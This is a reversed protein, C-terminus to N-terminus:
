SRKCCSPCSSSSASCATRSRHRRPPPVRPPPHHTTTSPPRPRPAARAQTKNEEPVTYATEDEPAWHAKVLNKFFVAAAQRVSLPVTEQTLMQLVTLVCQPNVKAKALEEEAAKRTAKDPSCSNQFLTALAEM